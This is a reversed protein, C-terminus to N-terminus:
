DASRAVARLVRHEVMTDLVVVIDGMLVPREVDYTELLAATAEGLTKGQRLLFLAEAAPGEVGFVQENTDDFFLAEGNSDTMTVGLELAIRSDNSWSM